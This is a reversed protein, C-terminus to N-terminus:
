RAEEGFDPALVLRLALASSLVFLALLAWMTWGGALTTKALGLRHAVTPLLSFGTEEGGRRYALTLLGPHDKGNIELGGPATPVGLLQVAGAGAGRICVAADPATSGVENVPIAVKGDTYGGPRSGAAIREGSRLRVQARLPPGPRGGTVAAVEIAATGRPVIEVLQCVEDGRTLTTVAGPSRVSNFGAYRVEPRALAIAVAVCLAFVVAAVSAVRAARPM